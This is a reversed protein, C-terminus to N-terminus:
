TEIEPSLAMLGRQVHLDESVIMTSGMVDHINCQEKALQEILLYCNLREVLAGCVRGQDRDDYAQYGNDFFARAAKELTTMIELFVSISFTGCSPSPILVPHSLFLFAQMNSLIGIDVLNATFRLINRTYHSSAYNGLMGAPMQTTSGILYNQGSFPLLEDQLELDSMMQPKLVRAWSLNSSKKGIPAQLVFRRYQAVTIQGDSVGKNILEKALAFLAAYESLLRHDALLHEIQDVNAPVPPSKFFEFGEWLPFEPKRHGVFYKYNM